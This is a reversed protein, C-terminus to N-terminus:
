SCTGAQAHFVRTEGARFNGGAMAMEEVLKERRQRVVSLIGVATVKRPAAPEQGLQAQRDPMRAAAVEYKTDFQRAVIAHRATYSRNRRRGNGCVECRLHVHVVEAIRLPRVVARKFHVQGVAGVWSQGVECQCAFQPAGRRLNGHHRQAADGIRGLCFADQCCAVNLEYGQAARQDGIGGPRQLRLVALGAIDAVAHRAVGAPLDDDRMCRNGAVVIWTGSFRAFCLGQGRRCYAAANGNGPRAYRSQFRGHCCGPAAMLHGHESGRGFDATFRPQMRGHRNGLRKGANVVVLKHLGPKRAHTKFQPLHDARM